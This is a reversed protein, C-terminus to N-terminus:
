DDAEAVCRSKTLRSSTMIPADAATPVEDEEEEDDDDDEEDDEISILGVISALMIWAETDM